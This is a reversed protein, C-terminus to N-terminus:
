QNQNKKRFELHGLLYQGIITRSKAVYNPSKAGEFRTEDREVVRLRANIIDEFFGLWVDRPM